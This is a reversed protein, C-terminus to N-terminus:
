GVRRRGNRRVVRGENCFRGPKDWASETSGQKKRMTFLAERWAGFLVGVDSHPCHLAVRLAARRDQLAGKWAWFALYKQEFVLDFPMEPISWDKANLRCAYKAVENAADNGFSGGEGGTGQTRRSTSSEREAVQAGTCCHGRARQPRRNSNEAVSAERRKTLM